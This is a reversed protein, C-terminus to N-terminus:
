EPVDEIIEWKDVLDSSFGVFAKDEKNKVCLFGEWFSVDVGETFEQISIPGDVGPLLDKTTIRVM